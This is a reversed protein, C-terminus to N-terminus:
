IGGYDYIYDVSDISDYIFDEHDISDYIDNYILNVLVICRLSSPKLKYILRKLEKYEAESVNAPNPFVAGGVYFYNPYTDPNATVAYYKERFSYGSFVDCRFAFDGEDDLVDCRISANDCQWTWRPVVSYIDNVLLDQADVLYVNPNRAAVPDSGPVWWEHVYVDFGANRLVSQIYGPSQGGSAGYEAKLQINTLARPSGIQYSMETLYETMVPFADSIVGSIHNRLTAPIEAIAVFFSRFPRAFKLNFFDSKPLLYEFVKLFNISM